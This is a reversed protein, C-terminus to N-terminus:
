AYGLFRGGRFIPKSFNRVTRGQARQEAIRDVSRKRMGLARAACQSGYYLESEGDSLVITRKLEPKGCKQCELVEDSVGKVVIQTQHQEM